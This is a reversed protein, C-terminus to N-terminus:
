QNDERQYSPAEAALMRKFRDELRNMLPHINDNMISTASVRMQEALEPDSERLSEISGQSDLLSEVTSVIARVCTGIPVDFYIRKEDYFDILNQFDERTKVHWELKTGKRSLVEWAAWVQLDNQVKALLAFLTEIAEARKQHLLSYRTQFEHFKTQFEAQLQIRYGELEKSIVKKYDEIERSLDQKHRETVRSLWYALLIQVLVVFFGTILSPALVAFWNISQPNQM